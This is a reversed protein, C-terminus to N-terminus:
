GEMSFPRLICHSHTKTVTTEYTYGTREISHLPADRRRALSFPVLWLAVGVARQAVSADPYIM